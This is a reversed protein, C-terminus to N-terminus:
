SNLNSQHLDSLLWRFFQFALILAYLFLLIIGFPWLMVVIFSGMGTDGLPGPLEGPEMQYGYSSDYFAALVAPVIVFLALASLILLPPVCIKLALHHSRLVIRRGWMEFTIAVALMCVGGAFTLMWFLVYNEPRQM